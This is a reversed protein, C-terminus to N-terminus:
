DAEFLIFDVPGGSIHPHYELYYLSNLNELVKIAYTYIELTDIYGDKNFDGNQFAELVGETFFGNQINYIDSLDPEASTEQEGAATIVIATDPTIDAESPHFCASLTSGLINDRTEDNFQYDAPVADFDSSQGIFGGSNCADIIVVKKSPPTDQLLSYFFTDSVTHTTYDPDEQYFVIYEDYPDSFQDENQSINWGVPSSQTGHGSFYILLIDNESLTAAFITLDTILQEKTAPATAPAVSGDNIRLHVNYGKETLRSAIDLADDDTFNLDSFYYGGNYSITEDYDSVGYVLAYRDPTTPNIKCSFFHLLVSLFLPLVLGLRLCCM